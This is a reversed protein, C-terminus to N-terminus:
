QEDHQCHGIGMGYLTGTWFTEAAGVVYVSVTVYSVGKLM